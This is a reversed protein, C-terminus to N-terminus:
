PHSLQHVAWHPPTIRPVLLSAQGVWGGWSGPWGRVKLFPVSPFTGFDTTLNAGPHQLLTEKM